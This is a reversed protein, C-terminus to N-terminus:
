RWVVLQDLNKRKKEPVEGDAPYGVPILAVPEHQVPLSLIEHCRKADFNCVWCTGLGLEVAKLMLHDVAIAVDIDAHDKGDSARKWSSDHLAVAIIVLPATEFWKRPYCANLQERLGKDSIVYFQFPQFNVASPALRATGIIEEILTKDVEKALYNRVSYRTSIAEDIQM